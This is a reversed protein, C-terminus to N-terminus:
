PAPEYDTSHIVGALSATYTKPHASLREYEKQADARDEFAAWYSRGAHTVWCVIFM